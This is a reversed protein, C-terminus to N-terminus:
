SGCRLFSFLQLTFPCIPIPLILTGRHWPLICLRAVLKRQQKRQKFANHRCIDRVTIGYVIWGVPCAPVVQVTIIFCATSKHLAPARWLLSHLSRVEESFSRIPAQAITPSILQIHAARSLSGVPTTLHSPQQYLTRLTPQRGVKNSPRGKCPM